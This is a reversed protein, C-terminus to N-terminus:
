ETGQGARPQQNRGAMGIAAFIMHFGLSLEMQIRAATLSSMPALGSYRTLHPTTGRSLATRPNDSPLAPGTGARQM